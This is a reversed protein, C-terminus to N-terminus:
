PGGVQASEAGIEQLEVNRRIELAELDALLLDTRIKELEADVGLEVLPCERLKSVIQDRQAGTGVRLLHILRVLQESTLHELDGRRDVRQM